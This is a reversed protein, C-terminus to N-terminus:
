RRPRSRRPRPPTAPRPCARGLAPAAAPRRARSAARIGAARSAPRAAPGAPGPRRPCRPPPPSPARRRSVVPAAAGQGAADACVIRSGTSSWKTGASRRWRRTTCSRVTPQPSDSSSRTPGCRPTHRAAQGPYVSEQEYETVLTPTRIRAFEDDTVEFRLLARVTDYFDHGGFPLSGKEADAVAPRSGFTGLAAATGLAGARTVFSRRPVQGGAM